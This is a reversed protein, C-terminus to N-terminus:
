GRARRRNVRWLGALGVVLLLLGVWLWQSQGSMGTGAIVNAGQLLWLAGFVLVIIAIVNAILKM